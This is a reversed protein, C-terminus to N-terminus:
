KAIVEVGSAWRKVGEYLVFVTDDNTMGDDEGGRTSFGGGLWSLLLYHCGFALCVVVM